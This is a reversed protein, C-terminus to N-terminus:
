LKIINTIVYNNNSNICKYTSMFCDYAERKSCNTYEKSEYKKTFNNYWIVIWTNM